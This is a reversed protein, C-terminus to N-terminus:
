CPGAQEVREIVPESFELGHYVVKKPHRFNPVIVKSCIDVAQVISSSRGTGSQKYESECRLYGSVSLTKGRFWTRRLIRPIQGNVLPVDPSLPRDVIMIKLSPVQFAITVHPLPLLSYNSSTKSYLVSISTFGKASRACM